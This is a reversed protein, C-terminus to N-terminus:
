VTDWATAVVVDTEVDEFKSSIFEGKYGQLNVKANDRMSEISQNDISIYKIKYGSNSLETGLRLISTHGGSFAPMGPIVFTIVEIKKPRENIIPNFDAVMLIDNLYKKLKKQKQLSIVKKLVKVAKNM